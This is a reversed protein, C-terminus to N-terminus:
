RRGDGSVTVDASIPPPVPERGRRRQLRELEHLLRTFQNTLTTDYRQVLTVIREFYRPKFESIQNLRPGKREDPLPHTWAAHHYQAEARACRQMRLYVVALKEVLTEEVAGEPKLSERFQGHIPRLEKRDEATLVSAFIGHKRANLSSRRKGQPTTPGGRRGNRRNAQKQRRSIKKPPQSAAAEPRPASEARQDKHERRNEPEPPPANAFLEEPSTSPDHIPM